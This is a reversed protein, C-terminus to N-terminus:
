RSKVGLDLEFYQEAPDVKRITSWTSERKEDGFADFFIEEQVSKLKSVGRVLFEQALGVQHLRGLSADSIKIAFFAELSSCKANKLRVCWHDFVQVSKGGDWNYRDFISLYSVWNLLVRDERVEMVLPVTTLVTSFNGLAYFWDNGQRAAFRSFHREVPRDISLTGDKAMQSTLWEAFKTGKETRLRSLRDKLKSINSKMRYDFASSHFADEALNADLDQGSKLMEDKFMALRNEAVAPILDAQDFKMQQVLRQVDEESFKFEAGSNKLFHTMHKASQPFGAVGAALSVASWLKHYDGDAKTLTSALAGHLGSGEVPVGEPPAPFNKGPDFFDKLKQYLKLVGGLEKGKYSEILRDAAEILDNREKELFKKESNEALAQDTKAGEEKVQATKNWFFDPSSPSNKEFRRSQCSATSLILCLPFIKVKSALREIPSLFSPSLKPKPM